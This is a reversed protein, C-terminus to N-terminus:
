NNNLLNKELNELQLISYNLLPSKSLYLFAIKQKVEKIEKKIEKRTKM